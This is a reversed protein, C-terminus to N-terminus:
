QDWGSVYEGISILIQEADYRTHTELDLDGLPALEAELDEAFDELKSLAIAAELLNHDEVGQIVERIIGTIGM